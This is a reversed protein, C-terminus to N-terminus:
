PNSYQSFRYACVLHQHCEVDKPKPNAEKLYHRLLDQLVFMGPAPQHEAPVIGRDLQAELKRCYEDGDAEDKFTFTLPKDLVGARKVIFQWSNGRLRKTAM